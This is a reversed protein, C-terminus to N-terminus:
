TKRCGQSVRQRRKECLRPCVEGTEKARAAQQYDRRTLNNVRERLDKKLSAVYNRSIEYSEQRCAEVKRRKEGFSMEAIFHFRWIKGTKRTM